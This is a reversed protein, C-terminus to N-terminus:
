IHGTALLTNVPKNKHKKKKKKLTLTYLIYRCMTYRYMNRTAWYILRLNAIFHIYHSFYRVKLQSEKLPAPTYYPAHLYVTAHVVSLHARNKMKTGLHRNIAAAARFHRYFPIQM